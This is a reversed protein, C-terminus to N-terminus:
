RREYTLFTYNPEGKRERRSVEKFESPNLTPYKADGKYRSHVRTLYVLSVDKLSQQYIEGGGIIFVLEGWQASQERCYHYAAELSEVVAAGPAEFDTQRTVIVNLRNPLPKGLSEFTKRGMIVAHGRTTDRFFKLDEAISWPLKGAVGIVNNEDAAAIHALKM